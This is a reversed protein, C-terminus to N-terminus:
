QTRWNDHFLTEDITTADAVFPRWAVGFTLGLLIGFIGIAIKLKHIVLIGAKQV